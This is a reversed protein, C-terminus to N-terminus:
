LVSLANESAGERIKIAVGRKFQKMTKGSVVSKGVALLEGRENIVAVDESPHLRDDCHVVHKCFVTRGKAIFGSVGDLAVVVWKPISSYDKRGKSTIMKKRGKLARSLLLRGGALTPAISGNPRFTFLLVPKEAAEYVHRLRGTKKSYEFDLKSYEILRSTGRGFVYDLTMALKAKALDSKRSKGTNTTQFNRTSFSKKL